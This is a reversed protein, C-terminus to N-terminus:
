FPGKISGKGVGKSKADQSSKLSDNCKKMSELFEPNEQLEAWTGFDKLVWELNLVGDKVSADLIRVKCIEM